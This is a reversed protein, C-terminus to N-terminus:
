SVPASASNNRKLWVLWGVFMIGVVMIGALLAFLDQFGVAGPNADLIRGAIPAFFIEPTYGVVSVLGVAAGTIHRPTRTEQLLAFYIGRLAFVAFLGVALNAYIIAQGATEPLLMSLALYTAALIGFTVGIANAANFRDAILGAVIAGVPRIYAGWSALRAAEVEDLGMVQVLYLSYYDVAKYTCYACVIIAAQAWVVPLHIVAAMNPFPNGRHDPEKDPPPILFWTLVGTLFAVLSYGLIVGQFGRRREEDTALTADEPMHFALVAVLLGAVVAAVIGRGGELLGFAVGQESEGGWERTARILAGWFLFITTFGWFAYLVAMGGAGPITAMFLGGIATTILSASLLGRASFHDAIAGGPFYSLMATVGYLAFLDGLQTNTFGFVELMTPRFFRATHFPLGFIMEGAIILAAIYLYRSM